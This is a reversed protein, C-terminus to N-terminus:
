AVNDYQAYFTWMITYPTECDFCQVDLKLQTLLPGFAETDVRSESLTEWEVAGCEPCCPPLNNEMM